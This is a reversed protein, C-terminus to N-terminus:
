DLIVIKKSEWQYKKNQFRLLYIGRSLEQLDFTIKKNKPFYSRILQGNLNILQVEKVNEKSELTIFGNTPNPYIAFKQESLQKEPLSVLTSCNFNSGYVHLPTSLTDWITQAKNVIRSFEEVNEAASSVSPKQGVAYVVEITKSRGAALYYFPISGLGRRDGPSNPNGSGNNSETWGINLVPNGTFMHTTPQNTVGLSNYGDGGFKVTQGNKWKANLYNLWHDVLVPDGNQGGGINYYIFTELSDSLTKVGVAPPNNGYGPQGNFPDDFPDGNYYYFSNKLSDCGIYDDSPNGLDGDIYIGTKVSDFDINGRNIVKFQMFVSRDLEPSSPDHMAYLMYHYEFPLQPDNSHNIWYIAEDGKISPYDGNEPDYCGNNNVDFFPALDPAIGLLSDGNAPWNKIGEPMQYSSSAFAQKHFNIESKSVKSTYRKSLGVTTNIPGLNFESMFPSKPHMSWQNQGVGKAVTMFNAAYILHNDSGKPFEFNARAAQTNSFLPDYSFVNTSIQNFDFQFSSQKPASSKDSFILGENTCFFVKNVSTIIENSRLNNLTGNLRIPYYTSDASYYLNSFGNSKSAWNSNQDFAFTLPTSTNITFNKEQIQLPYTVKLHKNGSSPIFTLHGSKSKIVEQILYQSSLGIPTQPTWSIGDFIYVAQYSSSLFAPDSIAYVNDNNDIELFKAVITPYHTFQTGDFKSVGNISGIWLHGNSSACINTITNSLLGNSTSYNTFSQGDYSSIGSNTVVWIKNQAKTIKFVGQQNTPIGNITLNIVNSGLLLSLGKDTGIWVTTDNEAFASLIENSQLGDSITLQFWANKQAFLLTFSFLFISSLLFRFFKM